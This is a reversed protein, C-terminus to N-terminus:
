DDDPDDDIHLDNYTHALALAHRHGEEAEEWTTYRWESGSLGGGFVMTEFVLPPGATFSHDLGTFATSIRIDGIYDDAIQRDATDFWRAWVTVDECPKPTRGDPGLIYKYTM